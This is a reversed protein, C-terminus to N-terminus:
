DDGVEFSTRRELIRVFTEFLHHALPALEDFPPINESRDFRIISQRLGGTHRGHARYQAEADPVELPGEWKKSQHVLDDLRRAADPHEDEGPPFVESIWDRVAKISGGVLEDAKLETLSHDDRVYSPISLFTEFTVADDSSTIRFYPGDCPQDEVPFEVMLLTEGDNRILEWSPTGEFLEPDEYAMSSLLETLRHEERDGPVDYRQKGESELKVERMALKGSMDDPNRSLDFLRTEWLDARVGRDRLRRLVELEAADITKPNPVVIHLHVNNPNDPWGDPREDVVPDALHERAWGLATDPSIDVELEEDILTQLRKRRAERPSLDPFTSQGDTDSRVHAWFGVIRRALLYRRADETERDFWELNCTGVRDLAYSLTQSLVEKSSSGYKLEFIHQVGAPDTAEIDTATFGADLEGNLRLKWDPFVRQLNLALLTELGEEKALQKNLPPNEERITPSAEVLLDEAFGWTKWTEEPNLLTSM